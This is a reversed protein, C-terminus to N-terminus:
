KKKTKGLLLDGFTGLREPARPMSGPEDDGAEGTALSLAIRRKDREVAIVTVQVAQGPKVIERPHNVRRGLESVHILGEVGPALEVFAGFSEIRAVTGSVRAGEPCREIVDDWPDKALSKLSLAIKEQKKTDGGREIKLIAVEVEQGVALMDKPHSVRAFGLESVHIMGEIGGLDVFAGYDKLASVRGRLIAGPVLKARTESAARRQEEELLARRSLVLNKPEYRTIRFALRRGVYAASDEVHRLDLQSIPCFGRVGAVTVEVGGKNVGTVLGEVPLGLSAAQELETKAIHGLGLSALVICGAKGATEIVRGEIEDGLKVRLQGSEDRLQVIDMMGEAKAGLDIFVAENGISVVRGRVTEGLKPDKRRPTASKDYEALLAGFDESDDNTMRASSLLCIRSATRANAIFM